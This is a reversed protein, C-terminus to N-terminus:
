DRKERVTEAIKRIRWIHTAPKSHPMEPFALSKGAFDQPFVEEIGLLLDRKKWLLSRKKWAAEEVLWGAYTPPPPDLDLSVSSSIEHTRYTGDLLYNPKIQENIYHYWYPYADLAQGLQKVSERAKLRDKVLYFMSVSSIYYGEISNHQPDSMQRRLDIARADLDSRDIGAQSSIFGDSCIGGLLRRLKEVELETDESIQQLIQAFPPQDFFNQGQSLHTPSEIDVYGQGTNTEQESMSLLGPLFRVRTMFTYSEPM